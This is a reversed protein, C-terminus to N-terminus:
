ASGIDVRGGLGEVLFHFEIRGLEHVPDCLEAECEETIGQGPLVSVLLVGEMHSAMGPRHFEQLHDLFDLWAIKQRDMGLAKFKELLM